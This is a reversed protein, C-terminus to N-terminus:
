RAAPPLHDRILTLVRFPDDPTFSPKVVRGLDLELLTQKRARDADFPLWTRFTSTGWLRGKGTLWGMEYAEVSKVQTYPIRKPTGLPFYYRRLTIGEDDLVVLGDDYLAV